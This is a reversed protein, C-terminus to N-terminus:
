DGNQLSRRWEVWASAREEMARGGLWPAHPESRWGDTAADLIMRYVWEGAERLDREWEAYELLEEVCQEPPHLYEGDEDMCTTEIMDRDRAWDMMLMQIWLTTKNIGTILGTAEVAELTAESETTSSFGGERTIQDTSVVGYQEVLLLVPKEKGGREQNLIWYRETM